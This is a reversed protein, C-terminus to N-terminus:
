ENSSAEVNDGGRQFDVEWARTGEELGQIERAVTEFGQLDVQDMTWPKPPWQYPRYPIINTLQLFRLNPARDELFDGLFIHQISIANASANANRGATLKLDPAPFRRLEFRQLQPLNLLHLINILSSEKQGPVHVIPKAARYEFGLKLECLTSSTLDLLDGYLFEYDSPLWGHSITLDVHTLSRWHALHAMDLSLACGAYALEHTVKLRTFQLRTDGLISALADIDTFQFKTQPVLKFKAAYLKNEAKREKSPIDPEITQKWGALRQDSIMNFGPRDCSECFSFTSIQLAALASLLERYSSSFKSIVLQDGYRGTHMVDEELPERVPWTFAAPGAPRYQRDHDNRFEFNKSVFAIEEVESSLDSQCIAIARQVSSPSPHVYLLKGKHRIVETCAPFFSKSAGRLRLVETLDVYELVNLILEDPLDNFNAKTSPKEQKARHRNKCNQFVMDFIAHLKVHQLQYCTSM